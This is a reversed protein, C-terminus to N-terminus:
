FDYGKDKYNKTGFLGVILYNSCLLFSSNHIKGGEDIKSVICLSFYSMKILIM